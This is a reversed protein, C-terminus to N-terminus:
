ASIAHAAQEFSTFLIQQAAQLFFHNGPLMHLRFSSLSQAKWAELEARSVVRDHLGGFATIPCKLPAEPQYDYSDCLQFDARITPLVLRMLETQALVEAPTGGLEHLKKILDEDSLASRAAAPQMPVQPARHASVFLHEPCQGYERRLYRALEFSILAGMSHGFFAFPIDISAYMAGALAAILSDLRAIPAERLRTGHGPLEVPVVDISASLRGPWSRFVAATGGAYSFCFLRLDARAQLKTFAFWSATMCDEKEHL